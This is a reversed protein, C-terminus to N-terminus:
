FGVDDFDQGAGLATPMGVGVDSGGEAVGELLSPVSTGLRSAM